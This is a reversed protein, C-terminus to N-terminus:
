YTLIKVYEVLDFIFASVQENSFLNLKKKYVPRFGLSFLLCSGVRRRELASKGRKIVM